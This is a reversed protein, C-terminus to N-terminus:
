LMSAIQIVCVEFVDFFVYLFLTTSRGVQSSSQSLGRGGGLVLFDRVIQLLSWWERLLYRM